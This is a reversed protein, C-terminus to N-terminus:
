FILVFRFHPLVNWVDDFESFKGNENKLRENEANKM